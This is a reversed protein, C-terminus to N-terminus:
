KAKKDHKKRPPPKTSGGVKKELPAKATTKAKETWACIPLRWDTGTRTPSPDAAKFNFDKSVDYLYDTTAVTYTAEPDVKKGSDLVAEHVAKKGSKTAKGKGEVRKAGSVFLEREGLLRVLAAGKVKLTYIANEFPLISYVSAKTIAGKALSQRVGSRNTVAVDVGMEERMARTIWAGMADSDDDMGSETFGITAGLAADLKTQAADRIAVISADPALGDRAKVDVLEADVNTVRERVPKAPDIAIKVRAYADLRWAPMIVPVGGIEKRERRHCHGLGVFALRWEPHREIVPAMEDDCAHAIVVVADAGGEYAADVARGLAPEPPDFALGEFRSPLAEKPTNETAIGVVGIKLHRREVMMSPLVGPDKAPDLVRVNAALYPVRSAKRNADFAEREFDYEHNGFASAVYGMRAMAEAMPAGRFYSSVAPGTFNDGGSLLVTSPDRCAGIAGAGPSPLPCFGDDSLWEALAEAAGGRAKEGEGHGFLWGHEDSTYLITITAPERPPAQAATALSTTTVAPPPPKPAPTPEAPCGALAIPLAVILWRNSAGTAAARDAPGDDPFPHRM